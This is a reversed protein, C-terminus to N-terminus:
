DEGNWIKYVLRLAIRGNLSLDEVHDREILNGCWLGRHVEKGGNCAVHETWRM